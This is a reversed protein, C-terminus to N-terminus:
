NTDEPPEYQITKQKATLEAYEPDKKEQGATTDMHEVKVNEMYALIYGTSLARQAIQHSQTGHKFTKENLRFDDWFRAPMAQVINGMHQVFGLFHNGMWGNRPVLQNGAKDTIGTRKAGGPNDRLGEVYPSVILRRNTSFLDVIDALWNESQFKVDNDTLVIIDYKGDLELQKKMFDLAKNYADPVGKNGGMSVVESDYEGKLKDGNNVIVHDFDYGAKERMSKVTRKLYKERNWTVTIVCVKPEPRPGYETKDPWISCGDPSFTPAPKGDPGLPSDHRLQASGEHILYNSLRLPVHVARHGAKSLRIWLNWDAFKKLGEDWGGVDELAEKRILVDSTDIYNQQQLFAPHWDVSPPMGPKQGKAHIVRDCYAFSIEPNAELAKVLAQLHDKEWWNDDDLYAVYKASALRSGINKPKSHAGSNTDLRHYIIRDDSKALKKCYKETNDTSHDDVIILEWDELSQNLVSAIAKRLFQKKHILKGPERNYTTIVVSVAPM